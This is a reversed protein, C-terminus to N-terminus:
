TIDIDIERLAGLAQDLMAVLHAGRASLLRLAQASQTSFRLQLRSPSHVLLLQTDPLRLPDLPVQVTWHLFDPGAEACLMAITEALATDWGPAGDAHVAPGCAAEFTTPPRPSAGPTAPAHLSPAVDSPPAVPPPAAPGPAPARGQPPAPAKAAPAQAAEPLRAKDVERAAPGLSRVFRERLLAPALPARM